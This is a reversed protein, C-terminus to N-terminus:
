SSSSPSGSASQIGIRHEGLWAEISAHFGETNDFYLHHGASPVIGVKVDAKGQSKWHSQLRSLLTGRPLMWDNDGFLLLVPVSLQPVADYLPQRAYVGFGSDSVM